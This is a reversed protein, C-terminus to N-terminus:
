KKVIYQSMAILDTPDDQFDIFRSCSEMMLRNNKSMRDKNGQADYFVMPDFMASEESFGEEVIALYNPAANTLSRVIVNQTYRVTSQTDIAVQTHLSQWNYLWQDYELYSPKKLFAVQDFGPTRKVPSHALSKNELPESETVLYGYSTKTYKRLITELKEHFSVSKVWVVVLGDAIPNAPLQGEAEQGVRTLSAKKVGSDVTNIQLYHVLDHMEETFENILSEKFQDGSQSDRKTIIYIIKEM